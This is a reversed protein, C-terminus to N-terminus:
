IDIPFTVEEDASLEETPIFEEDKVARQQPQSPAAPPSTAPPAGGGPAQAPPAAPRQESQAPQPPPSEQGMSAASLTGLLTLLAVYRYPQM